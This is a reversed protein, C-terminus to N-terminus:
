LITRCCRWSATWQSCGWLHKRCWSLAGHWAAVAFYNALAEAKRCYIRDWMNKILGIIRIWMISLMGRLATNVLLKYLFDFFHPSLFLISLQTGLGITTMWVSSVM